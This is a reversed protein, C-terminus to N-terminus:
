DEIRVLYKIYIYIALIRLKNPKLKWIIFNVNQRHIERIIDERLSVFKQNKVNMTKFYLRTGLSILSNCVLDDIESNVKNFLLNYIDRRAYYETIRKNNLSFKSIGNESQNYNYLNKYCFLIKNSVLIYQIVFLLDECMWISENLKLDNEDIIKKVFIKNWLFGGFEDDKLIMKFAQEKNCIKYKLEEEEKKRSLTTALEVEGKLIYRMHEEIYKDEVIDDADCFCIYKGDAISLGKNRAASPGKNKTKVYIIRDDNFCKCIKGTSDTSGDDVIIIQIQKYTQNLLATVINGITHECNYVPIIISVLEM